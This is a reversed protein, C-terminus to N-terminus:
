LNNIPCNYFYYFYNSKFFIDYQQKAKPSLKAIGKGSLIEQSINWFKCLVSRGRGKLNKKQVM